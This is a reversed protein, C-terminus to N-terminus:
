AIERSVVAALFYCALALGALMTFGLLIALFTGLVAATVSAFGNIGWAWPVLAAARSHVLKLGTPFPMGMFFALPATIAIGLLIRIQRTFGVLWDFRFHLLIIEALGILIIATVAIRVLLSGHSTVRPGEASRHSLFALIRGSALSGLGSFVLFGTLTVAVGFVPHGVLLTMKQIFGMELFMYALGLLLFYCLVPFRGSKIEKVPRAIFLPLLIFVASAAVAQVLAAVLVLYGWESFPLWQRGLTRVMYPLSRWKFFDFFYPRDDTAPAINYAYDRYFTKFDSSLLRQASEYYIPQELVHYRNVENPKIGPIHVLDFSREEVFRRANEIQSDSLPASSVVITATAWSRIMIIHGAPEAVGRRRLVEAVTALMKLSDRPPYKLMRTISLLGGPRLRRVALDLAEVTYLHSENLAYVGAASASFSDLMSMNIIDFSERTTQLFNRGEAIVVSVDNRDYLGSSFKNLTKRVLKVIQPNMEVCTVHRSGLLLAQGVDSGGGAGIICVDPKSTLHYTIASTVYDYCDLETLADFRNVASVADADTIILVQQPLSGRYSISLGPFQRITPAQVCDLRGLPSYRVTRTQAEPLAIYYVLSKNESIGIQLRLAGVRSFAFLWFIALIVTVAGWRRAVAFALVIAAVFAALSIVLLLKEPSNGYMLAVIGAAGLGSGTMNYFYLRSAKEACVTFAVATFTGACFFPIFFLLYYAFLYLVQRKDWILQLEDLPVKQSIQFVIPVAAGFFLALCWLWKKHHTTFAKSFVAAFTGGAGFGLLATSIVLYSFHHWHGISFIRVLVLELALAAASVLFIAISIATM